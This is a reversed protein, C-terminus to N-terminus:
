IMATFHIGADACPSVLSRIEASCHTILALCAPTFTRTTLSEPVQTPVANECARESSISRSSLLSMKNTVAAPLVACFLSLM